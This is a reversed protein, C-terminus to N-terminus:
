PDEPKHAPLTGPPGEPVSITVGDSTHVELTAEVGDHDVFVITTHDDIRIAEGPGRMLVLM